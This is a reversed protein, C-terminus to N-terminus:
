EEFTQVRGPPFVLAVTKGRFYKIDIPGWYRSDKALTPEEGVLYFQGEALQVTEPIEEGKRFDKEALISETVSQGAIQLEGQAGFSVTEGPLGAVRLLLKGTRRSEVPPEIWIIEGRQIESVQPDSREVLVWDGDHLTPSMEDGEVHVYAYGRPDDIFGVKLGYVILGTALAGVLVGGLCGGSLCGCTFLFCGGDFSRNTESNM